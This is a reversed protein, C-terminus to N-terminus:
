RVAGSADATTSDRDARANSSRRGDGRRQEGQPQAAASPATEAGSAPPTNVPGTPAAPNPASPASPTSVTVKAGDSLRGFGSTVVKQGAELGAAVVAESETMTALTIAALRAISDDGVVYAYTGNPGRQVASLPIVIADKETDVRVRVNAFQGPWLQREVNPFDAKMKVTGTQQDIQNDVVKLVGKDVVKRGDTGLAEVNVEGAALARNVEALRQQPLTFLVAIPQIQTIVALGADGSRVLNGEDVLRMGVRGSIPSTIRTYGLVTEANALAATDAKLQAELQGVQARQTDVTKDAVVGPIKQYRTLDLRANELQKETLTAKAAAQDRLARYTAPDIEALLDGERVDQGEAFAIRQITGDVQPRVTVTKLPRATGVGELMVPVDKRAVDAVLVPVPGDGAGGRRGRRGGSGGNNSAGEGGEARRRGRRGEGRREGGQGASDGEAATVVPADQSVATRVADPMWAPLWDGPVPKLYVLGGALSAALGITVTLKSITSM